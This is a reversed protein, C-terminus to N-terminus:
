LQYFGVKYDSCIKLRKEFPKLIIMIVRRLRNMVEFKQHFRQKKEWEWEPMGSFFCLFM